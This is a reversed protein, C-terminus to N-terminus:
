SRWLLAKYSAKIKFGFSEYLHLAVKNEAHVRLGATEKELEQLKRMAFTMLQKGYGKGRHTPSIGVNAISAYSKPCLDVIGVLEDDDYLYYLLEENYWYDLFMDPFDGLNSLVIELMTDPSGSMFEKLIRLFEPVEPRTVEEFGISLEQDYISDLDAIMRHSHAVEKYGQKIFANVITKEESPIDVFSYVANEKEAIGLAESVFSKMTEESQEYDVILVVSVKTGLPEIIKLPEEGVVVIGVVRRQEIIVWYPVGRADYGGVYPEIVETFMEIESDDKSLIRM